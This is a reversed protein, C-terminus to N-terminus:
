GSALRAGDNSFAVSNVDASHGTLVTSSNGSTRDWIIITKDASATAILKGDLSFAVCRITDDHGKLPTRGIHCVRWLYRWEFGRLDEQGGQPMHRELLDLVDTVQASQWLDGAARIDATYVKNLTVRESKESRRRQFEALVAFLLTACSL